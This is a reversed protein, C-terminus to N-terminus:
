DNKLVEEYKKIIKNKNYKIIEKKANFIIKNRINENNLLEIKDVIENINGINFLLGNYGDKIIEEPGGCKSSIVPTGCAMSEIIVNGFSESESTVVLVHCKAIYKYPNEKWGLFHVRDFLNLEKAIKILNEKEPGKGIFILEMNYDLKSLVYILDKNRKLKILRGLSIIYKKNKEFKFSNINEVSLKQIRNIDFPNYIVKKNNNFNFMNQMDKQVMDSVSIIIDAYKYLYKILFLNIKGKLGEKKFRSIISHNVVQVHHKSNFLLKYLINVYNARFLHSQLVDFENKKVYKSLKYILFPLALLKIINSKSTTQSLYTVKIGNLDWVINNKELCILEVDFEQPNLNEVIIKVVKEAGGDSLSNVLFLVKKM